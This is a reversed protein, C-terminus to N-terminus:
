PGIAGSQKLRTREAPSFGIEELIEAAHEGLRPSPLRVECPAQAFKIPFGVMRVAGYGPHDVDIAMDQGRVQPDAFVGAVDYVPGCPVGAANLTKIWYASSNSRLKDEVLANLRERNRVRL